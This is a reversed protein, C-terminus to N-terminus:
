RGGRMKQLFYESLFTAGVGCLAPLMLSFMGVFPGNFLLRQPHVTGDEITYWSKRWFDGVTPVELSVETYRDGRKLVRFYTYKSTNDRISVRLQENIEALNPDSTSTAVPSDPSLKGLEQVAFRGQQTRVLIPFYSPTDASVDRAWLMENLRVSPVVLIAFVALFVFARRLLKKM